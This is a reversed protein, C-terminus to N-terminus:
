EVVTGWTEGKEQGLFALGTDNKSNKDSGMEKLHGFLIKRREEIIEIINHQVSM